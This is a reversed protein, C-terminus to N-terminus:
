NQPGAQELLKRLNRAFNQLSNFAQQKNKRDSIAKRVLLLTKFLYLDPSKKARSAIGEDISDTSKIIAQIDRTVKKAQEPRLNEVLSNAENIYTIKKDNPIEKGLTEEFMQHLFIGAKVIDKDNIKATLTDIKVEESVRDFFDRKYAEPAHAKEKHKRDIVVAEDGTETDTITLKALKTATPPSSIIRYRNNEGVMIPIGPAQTLGFDGDEQNISGNPLLQIKQDKLVQFLKKQANTITM